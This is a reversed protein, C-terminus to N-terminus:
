KQIGIDRSDLGSTEENIGKAMNKSVFGKVRPGDKESRRAKNKPKKGRRGQQSVETM